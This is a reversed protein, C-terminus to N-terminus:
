AASVRTIAQLSVEGLMYLYFSMHEVQLDLVREEYNQM